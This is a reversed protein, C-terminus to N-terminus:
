SRATSPRILASPARAHVTTPHASAYRRGRRAPPPPIPATDRPRLRCPRLNVPGFTESGGCIACPRASASCSSAVLAALCPANDDDARCLEAQVPLQPRVIQDQLPDFGATRADAGGEARLKPRFTIRVLTSFWSLPLAIKSHAGGPMCHVNAIGSAIIGARALGSRACRRPGVARCGDCEGDPRRTSSTSSSASTAIIIWSHRVSHPCETM